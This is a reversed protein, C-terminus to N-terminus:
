YIYNSQTIRADKKAYELVNKKIFKIDKRLNRQEQEKSEVNVIKKNEM